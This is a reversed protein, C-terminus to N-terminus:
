DAGQLGLLGLANGSSVKELDEGGLDLADLKFLAVRPYHLPMDSGFLLRDPGYLQLLPRLGTPPGPADSDVSLFRGSMEVHWNAAEPLAEAVCHADATRVRELVFSVEPFARIVEAVEAASPALAQVLPHRQRPDEVEFAISVPAKHEAAVSMVERFAGDASANALSYVHYGPLLRLARMGMETLCLRADRAAEPYAPNVWAAGVLRDGRGKLREALLENAAQVNRYLVGELASVLAMSVGEKDMLRLLGDADSHPVRRFPFSGVSAVYDFIM